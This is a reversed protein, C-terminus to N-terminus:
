IRGLYEIGVLSVRMRELRLRYIGKPRMGMAPIYLDAKLTIGDELTLTAKSAVDDTGAPTPEVTKVRSNKLITVGGKALYDEAKKAIAPRLIPLIKSDSTM